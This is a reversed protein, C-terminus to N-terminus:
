ALKSDFAKWTTLREKETEGENRFLLPFSLSIVRAMEREESRERVSV